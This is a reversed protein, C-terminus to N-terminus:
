QKAGMKKMADKIEAIDDRAHSLEHQVLNGQFGVKVAWVMSCILILLAIALMAAQKGDVKVKSEIPVDAVTKNM